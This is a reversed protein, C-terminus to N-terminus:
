FFDSVKVLEDRNEKSNGKKKLLDLKKLANEKRYELSLKKNSFVQSFEDDSNALNSDTEKKCSIIIIAFLLFSIKNFIRM